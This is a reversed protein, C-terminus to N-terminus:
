VLASNYGGIERKCRKVTSFVLQDFEGDRGVLFEVYEKDRLLGRIIRELKREAAFPDDIHRHGFFSVTYCDLMFLFARRVSPLAHFVAITRLGIIYSFALKRLQIRKIIIVVTSM